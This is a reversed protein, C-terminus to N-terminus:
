FTQKLVRTVRFIMDGATASPFSPLHRLARGRLRLGHLHAIHLTDAFVARMCEYEGSRLLCRKCGFAECWLLSAFVADLCLFRPVIFLCLSCGGRDICSRERFVIFLGFGLEVGPQSGLAALVVVSRISQPPLQPAIVYVWVRCPRRAVRQQLLCRIAAAAAAATIAAAVALFLVTRGAMGGLAEVAALHAM